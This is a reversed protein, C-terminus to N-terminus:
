IGGGVGVDGFVCGKINQYCHLVDLVCDAPIYHYYNNIEKCQMESKGNPIAAPYKLKTNIEVNRPQWENPKPQM